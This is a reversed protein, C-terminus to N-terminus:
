LDVHAWDRCDAYNSCVQLDAILSELTNITVIEGLEELHHEARGLM